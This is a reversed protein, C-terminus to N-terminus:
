STTKDLVYAYRSQSLRENQEEIVEARSKERERKNTQPMKGARLRSVLFAAPNTFRSRRKQVYDLWSSILERSCTKALNEAVGAEIGQAILLVSKQASSDDDDVNIQKNRQKSAVTETTSVAVTETTSVAVTETTSIEVEYDINLCYLFTARQSGWRLPEEVRRLIQKDLCEKIANHVTRFSGIGSMAKFQRYTIIDSIRRQKNKDMWGWTHRIAVCLIKFANPSLTKMVVDFVANNIPFFGGADFPRITPV